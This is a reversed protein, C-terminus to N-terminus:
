KSSLPYIRAAGGAGLSQAVWGCISALPATLDPGDVAVLEAGGTPLGEGLPRRRYPRGAERASGDDPPRMRFSVTTGSGPGRGDDGPRAVEVDTSLAAILELGRGRHGRDAPPPRWNGTDRVRVAIGGDPELAVRYEFGGHGSGPYAHEVSNAAAEGLALQLDELTEDPVGGAEAWATVARRVGSLQTPDAPLRQELVDPLLRAAIVAVDDPQGTDALMEDLLRRTLLAPGSRAHSAAIARLRDLGADLDEDRREILGDTYLLLTTGPGVEVMGETYPRRQPMGLVAGSGAADLLRAGQPTLLLPPPHGARAWCVTGAARDIVLCAASSALAGPLRSAFRDLLELAAAPSSGQLLAASLASRLQGMVAAAAPGQGVVDGVAIAVRSDDLAVVDYWDGGAQTGEAGPLYHAALALRDLSPLRAPLLSRQLTEAIGQEARYLRARDLAQACQEAMALLMARETAAIRRAGPFGIGIAGVVRGAVVLPLGVSAGLSFARVTDALEPPLSDTRPGGAVHDETWVPSRRNVADTVAIPASLSLNAWLQRGDASAGSITLASLSRLSADLEYVAVRSEPGTLQWIHGAAAAGVQAPTTAASLEATARQLITLRHAAAREDALLMANDLALAARAAVEEVMALDDENYPPADVQRGLALVALVRGRVTLPVLVASRMGLPREPPVAGPRESAASPWGAPLDPQLTSRATALVTRGLPSDPDMAALVAESGADPGAIAAFRLKGDPGAVRATCFDALRRTVTFRALRALQDDVATERDLESGVEALLTQRESERYRANIDTCSGVYGTVTGDAGIPAAREILWHFAGDSRRLRFEVEWSEGRRGAAGVVERYRDVDDPHLGEEWRDGLEADRTRGTFASWGRNVFTRRGKDDAVWILAPALDAMATFRQEAERRARGLHLHAGVRALLEQASFPKVLYDDAGAALGEVAAEEGARASLLLVPIRSTRPDARLASLLAMGDLRPMMVDSVVLDPPDSRVLGVLADGNAAEGVVEVDEVAQLLARLLDRALPEDDAIIARIPDSM